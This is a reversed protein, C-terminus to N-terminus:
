SSSYYGNHHPFDEFPKMLAPPATSILDPPGLSYKPSAPPVKFNETYKEEFSVLKYKHIRRHEQQHKFLVHGERSVAGHNASSTM